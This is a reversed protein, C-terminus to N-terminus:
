IVQAKCRILMTQPVENYETHEKVTASLLVKTGKPFDFPYTSTKWVMINGDSDTFKIINLRGYPFPREVSYCNDYTVPILIKEGVVGVHTRKSLKAQEEQYQPTLKHKEEVVAGISDSFVYEGFSNVMTIEHVDVTVTTFEEPLPKNSTWGWTTYKCGLAKLKEILHYTKGVVFYIKGDPSFNNNELFVANTSAAANRRAEDNKQQRKIRQQELKEAYEPTYEKSKTIYVGSGNCDYCVGGDIYAYHKIYGTGGCKCCDQVVEYYKTGNKDTKILTKKRIAM